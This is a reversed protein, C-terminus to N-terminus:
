RIILHKEINNLINPHHEIYSISSSLIQAFRDKDCFENCNIGKEKLCRTCIKQRYCKKCLPIMMQLLHNYDDAIKDFPICVNTDVYGLPEDRCVKECPHIGGNHDVFLRKSFPVCTGTPLTYVKEESDLMDNETIFFNYSSKQILNYVQKVKPNKSILEIDEEMDEPIVIDKLM